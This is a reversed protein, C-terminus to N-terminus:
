HAEEVHAGHDTVAKALVDEITAGRIMDVSACDFLMVWETGSRREARARLPTVLGRQRHHHFAFQRSQVIPAKTEAKRRKSELLAALILSYNALDILTDIVTESKVAATRGKVLGKIRMFKDTMRVLIGVDAPVIDLLEVAEFNAFANDAGATYDSNKKEATAVMEDCRSRMFALLEERKM